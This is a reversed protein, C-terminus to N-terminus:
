SKGKLSKSATVRRDKVFLYDFPGEDYILDHYSLERYSHESGTICVYKVEIPEADDSNFLVINHGSGMASPYEIGDYGSKKVWDCLYQTSFYIKDEERPLVPRSLEDALRYFLGGLQIKWELLDDFFPSKPFAYNLLSVVSLRRKVQFTAVAVAIGRWARVEALATETDSALYLMPENKRNARGAPTETPPPAGMESLRFREPRFRDDHKRARYLIKGPGYTTSLDEFAVELQDPFDEYDLGFTDGETPIWAFPKEGGTYYAEAKEHWHDVLRAEKRRFGESFDPYDGSLYDKPDIGAKLISVTMEQMLDDSAREIKNSYVQWDGQLLYSISDDDWEGPQYITVAERFIDGLEYLPVVYM